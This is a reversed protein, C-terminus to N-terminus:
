PRPDQLTRLIGQLAGPDEKYGIFSEDEDTFVEIRGARLASLLANGYASRMRITIAVTVLAV